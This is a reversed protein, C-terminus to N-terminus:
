PHLEVFQFHKIKYTVIFLIKSHHLVEQIITHVIRLAILIKADDASTQYGHHNCGIKSGFYKM